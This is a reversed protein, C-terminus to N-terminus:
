ENDGDCLSITDPSPVGSDGDENIDSWEELKLLQNNSCHNILKAHLSLKKLLAADSPSVAYLTEPCHYGNFETAIAKAYSGMYDFIIWDGIDLEPMEVHPLVEDASDCTPGWIKTMHTPCGHKGIPFGPIYIKYVPVCNFSGFVGDNVFYMFGPKEASEGEKVDKATVRNKGIVNVCLTFCALSFYRGPEAIVRFDKNTEHEDGFYETIAGQVVHSIKALSIEETDFGPYGGGIDLIRMAHGHSKALEFLRKAHGIAENYYIPSKSGSGVHFSVGVIKLGLATATSILESARKEPNCGFKKSLKAVATPDIIAIRLVLEADPYYAKIKHLEAENDFTMLKVGKQKAYTLYARPKITNAYIIRDPSVGLSLVTSIEGMSACDFNVGLSALLTLLVPDPNAKVAYFPHIGHMLEMWRRYHELVRSTNMLYFADEEGAQSREAAVKIVENWHAHPDNLATLRVQHSAFTTSEFDIRLRNTM